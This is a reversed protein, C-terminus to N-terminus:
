FIFGPNQKSLNKFGKGGEGRDRRVTVASVDSIDTAAGFVSPLRTSPCDPTALPSPSGSGEPSCPPTEQWGLERDSCFGARGKGKEEPEETHLGSSWSCRIPKVKLVPTSGIPNSVYKFSSIINPSAPSADSRQRKTQSRSKFGGLEPTQPHSTIPNVCGRGSSHQATHPVTLTLSCFTPFRPFRKYHASMRQNLGVLQGSRHCVWHLFLLHILNLGSHLRLLVVEQPAPLLLFPSVASSHWLHGPLPRRPLRQRHSSCTHQRLHAGGHVLQASGPPSKSNM